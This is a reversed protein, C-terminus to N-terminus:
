NTSSTLDNVKWHVDTPDISSVVYFMYEDAVNPVEFSVDLTVSENPEIQVNLANKDPLVQGEYSKDGPEERLEFQLESPNVTKGDDRVNKVTFSVVVSYNNNSTSEEPKIKESYASNVTTGYYGGKSGEGYLMIGKELREMREQDGYPKTAPGQENDENMKHDMNNEEKAKTVNSENESTSIMGNVLFLGMIIIGICSLGFIKKKM